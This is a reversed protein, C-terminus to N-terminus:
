GYAGQCRIAPSYVTDGLYCRPPMFATSNEQDFMTLRPEYNGNNATATDLIAQGHFNIRPFDFQSM